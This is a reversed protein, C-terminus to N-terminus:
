FEGLISNTQEIEEDKFQNRIVMVENWDSLFADVCVPDFHSGAGERLLAIARDDEWAKKYPRASTLADFVDAVACIRAFVPIAEGALGTPYGTGDFKEHHHLAIQAAVQLMMSQSGNLIGYGLISHRKMIEFEAVDLRGQKLLINDPIGVKGIDHMPSAELLMDQDEESMGMRKAIHKSFHAMRLIHAGTEPDRSDAAKSLRIITERERALIEATAKKVEEALWAAHDALKRQSRRLSLMNRSRAMFEAKDIPKTLFDNAGAELAQHRVDIHSNATVMLVPIDERGPTARFRRVFEIGDLEPMMYDVIVLDPINQTCWDLGRQPVTFGLAVSDELKGVLHSLLTINIPTDDVVVVNM